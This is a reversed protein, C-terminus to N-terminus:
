LDLHSHCYQRRASTDAATIWRAATKVSNHFLANLIIIGAYLTCVALISLSQICVGVHQQKILSDSKESFRVYEFRNTLDISYLRSDSHVIVPHM